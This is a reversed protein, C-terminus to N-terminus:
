LAGPCYRTRTWRVSRRPRWATPYRCTGTASADAAGYHGAPDIQGILRREDEIGPRDSGSAGFAKEAEALRGLVRRMKELSPERTNLVLDRYAEIARVAQLRQWAPIGKDRLSQSFRIVEAETVSLNGRIMGVTSSYRLVWRPFWRIGAEGIRADNLLVRFRKVSM